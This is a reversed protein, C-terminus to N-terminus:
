RWFVRYMAKFKAGHGFLGGTEIRVHVQATTDSTKTVRNQTKVSRWVTFDDDVLEEVEVVSSPSPRPGPPVLERTVEGDGCMAIVHLAGARDNAPDREIKAMYDVPHIEFYGRGFTGQGTSGGRWCGKADKGEDGGVGGDLKHPEDEWLTGVLRVYDGSALPGPHVAPPNEPDFPWAVGERVPVWDRPPQKSKMRAPGWGNVEIHLVMARTGGWINADSSLRAPGGQDGNGFAIVNHATIAKNIKDATNYPTVGSLTDSTWGHDLLLNFGFEDEGPIFYPTDVVWGRVEVREYAPMNGNPGTAKSLCGPTSGKVSNGCFVMSPPTQTRGAVWYLEIPSKVFGQPPQPPPGIRVSQVNQQYLCGISAACAAATWHVTQGSFRNLERDSPPTYFTTFRNTAIVLTQSTDAPQVPCAVGPASICFIYSDAAPVVSWDFTPRFHSAFRSIPSLVPAAFTWSLARPGSQTCIVPAASGLTSKAVGPACARVLWELAKSQFFPRLQVEFRTGTIRTGSSPPSSIPITIRDADEVWRYNVADGSTCPSGAVTVCIEYYAPAAARGTGGRWEFIVRPTTLAHSPPPSVLVPPPPGNAIQPQSRLAQNLQVQTLRRLPSERRRPQTYGGVAELATKDPLLMLIRHEDQGVRVSLATEKAIRKNHTTANTRLAAIFPSGLSRLRLQDEVTWEVVYVGPLIVVDSGKVDLFHVSREIMVTPADVQAAARTATAVTLAFAVLVVNISENM